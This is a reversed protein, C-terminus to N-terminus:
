TVPAGDQQQERRKDWNEPLVFSGARPVHSGLPIGSGSAGSHTSLMFRAGTQDRVGFLTLAVLALSSTQVTTM